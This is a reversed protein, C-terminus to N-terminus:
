REVIGGVLFVKLEKALSCMEQVIPGDLSLSQMCYAAYVTKQKIDDFEAGGTSSVWQPYSLLCLDFSIRYKKHM